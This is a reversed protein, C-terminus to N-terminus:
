ASHQVRLLAMSGCFITQQLYPALVHVNEKEAGTIGATRDQRFRNEVM